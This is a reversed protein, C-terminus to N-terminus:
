PNQLDSHAQLRTGMSGRESDIYCDTRKKKGGGETSQRCGSNSKGSNRGNEKEPCFFFFVNLAEIRETKETSGNTQEPIKIWGM